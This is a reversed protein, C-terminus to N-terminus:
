ASRVASPSDILSYWNMSRMKEFACRCSRCSSWCTRVADSGARTPRRPAARFRGTSEHAQALPRDRGDASDAGCFRTGCGCQHMTTWRAVRSRAIRLAVANASNATFPSWPEPPEGYRAFHSWMSMMRRSLATADPGAGAFKAIAPLEFNGFVFPIEIAHTAGLWGRLAPSPWDFQYVWTNAGRALAYRFMPDRFRLETEVDSLMAANPNRAEPALARYHALVRAANASPDPVGREKLRRVLHSTLGADDLKLSSRIYLRYEDRNIGIILPIAAGSQAATLPNVPLVDGDVHPRIPSAHHVPRLRSMVARQARLLATSDADEPDVGLEERLVAATEDAQARTAANDAAGSQAIARHFLGRAAPAGLLNCVSMAGASEGALTVNDADGGFAAINHKVWELAAIQDRLGVNREHVPVFGWVGLRYNITVVVMSGAAALNSGDFLPDAGDGHIFGGGYIWVFVPLPESAETPAFVNLFLCDEDVRVAGRLGVGVTKAQQPAPAAEFAEFVGDWGVPARPRLFRAAGVAPRAFRIGLFRAVPGHVTGAVIGDPLRVRTEVPM